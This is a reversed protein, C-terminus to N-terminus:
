LFALIVQQCRQPLVTFPKAVRRQIDAGSTKTQTFRGITFRHCGFQLAGVRCFQEIGFIEGFHRQNFATAPQTATRQPFEFNIGRALLQIQLKAGAIQNAKANFIGRTPQTRCPTEQLIYFIGLAGGQRM